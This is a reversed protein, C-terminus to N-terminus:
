GACWSASIARRCRRARRLPRLLPTSSASPSSIRKPTSRFIRSLADHRGGDCGSAAARYLRRARRPRRSRCRDHRRRRRHERHRDAPRAIAVHQGPHHARDCRDRRRAPVAGRAHDSPQSLAAGVRRRDGLHVRRSVGGRARTRFGHHRGPGDIKKTRCRGLGPDKLHFGPGSSAQINVSKRGQQLASPLHM